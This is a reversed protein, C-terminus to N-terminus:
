DGTPSGDQIKKGDNEIFGYSLLPLPLGHTLLAHAPLLLDSVSSGEAGPSLPMEPASGQPHRPGLMAGRGFSSTSKMVSGDSWGRCPCNKVPFGYNDTFIAQLM